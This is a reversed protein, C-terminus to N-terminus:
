NKFRGQGVKKNYEEIKSSIAQLNHEQKFLFGWFRGVM